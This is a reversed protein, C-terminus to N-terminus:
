TYILARHSNMMDLSFIFPFQQSSTGTHHARLSHFCLSKARQGTGEPPAAPITDLIVPVTPLPKAAMVRSSSNWCFLLSSIPRCGFSKPSLRALPPFPRKRTHTQLHTNSTGAQKFIVQLFTQYRRKQNILQVPSVPLPNIPSETYHMLQPTQPWIEPWGSSSFNPDQVPFFM